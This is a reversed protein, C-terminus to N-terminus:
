GHEISVLSLGMNFQPVSLVSTSQTIKPYVQSVSLFPLNLVDDTLLLFDHLIAHACLTCKPGAETLQGTRIM